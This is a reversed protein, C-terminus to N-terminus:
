FESPKHSLTGVRVGSDRPYWVTLRLASSTWGGLSGLLRTRGWDKVWTILLDCVRMERRVCHMREDSEQSKETCISGCTRALTPFVWGHGGSGLEAALYVESGM